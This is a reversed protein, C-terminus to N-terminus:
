QVNRVKLATSIAEGAAVRKGADNLGPTDYFTIQVTKGNSCTVRVEEEDLKYTLGSGISPGSKFVFKQALYNLTTSKGSGPNGIAIISFPESMDLKEQLMKGREVQMKREKEDLEEEKEVLKTELEKRKIEAKEKEELIKM